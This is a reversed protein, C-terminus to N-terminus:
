NNKLPRKAPIGPRRPYSQPVPGNKHYLLWEGGYANQLEGYRERVALTLQFRATAAAAAAIEEEVSRGKFYLCVGGVQALPATLEMLANLPALARATVVDFSERWELDHAAIEARRPDVELHSAGLKAAAEQIFRAKNANSECCAVRDFGGLIAWVVGPLGAGSGVDVARGRALGLRQLFFYGLACDLIHRQLLDDLGCPGILNFKQNADSLMGAFVLLREAAARAAASPALGADSLAQALWDQKSSDM